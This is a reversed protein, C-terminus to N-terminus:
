ENWTYKMLKLFVLLFKCVQVYLIYKHQFFFTMSYSFNYIYKLILTIPPTKYHIKQHHIINIYM